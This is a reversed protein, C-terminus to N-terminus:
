QFPGDQSTLVRYSLTLEFKSRKSPSWGIRDEEGHRLQFSYLREYFSLVMEVEWDQVPRTFKKKKKILFLCTKNFAYPARVYM